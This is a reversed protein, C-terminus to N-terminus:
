ETVSCKTNNYACSGIECVLNDTIKLPIMHPIWHM